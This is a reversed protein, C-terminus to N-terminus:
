ISGNAGYSERKLRNCKAKSIIVTSLEYVIDEASLIDLRYPMSERTMREYLPHALCSKGHVFESVIKHLIIEIKYM